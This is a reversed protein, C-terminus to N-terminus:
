CKGRTESELFTNLFNRVHSLLNIAPIFLSLFLVFPLVLPM